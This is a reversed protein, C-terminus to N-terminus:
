GAAAPEAKGADPAPAPAPAPADAPEVSAEAAEGETEVAPFAEGEAALAADAHAEGAEAEAGEVLLLEGEPTLQPEIYDPDEPAPLAAIADGSLQLEDDAVEAMDEGEVGEEITDPAPEEDKKREPRPPPMLLKSLPQPPLGAASYIAEGVMDVQERIVDEEVDPTAVLQFGANYLGSAFEHPIWSEVEGRLTTVMRDSRVPASFGERGDFKGDEFLLEMHKQLVLEYRPRLEALKKQSWGPSPVGIMADWLNKGSLGGFSQDKKVQGKGFNTAKHLDNVRDLMFFVVLLVGVLGTFMLLLLITNLQHEM